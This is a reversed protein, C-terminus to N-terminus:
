YDESIKELFEDVEDSSYGRIVKKFEKNSIDMSTIKM